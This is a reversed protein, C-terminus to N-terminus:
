KIATYSDTLAGRSDFRVILLYQWDSGSDMEGTQYWYVNDSQLLPHAPSGSEDPKPEYRKSFPQYRVLPEGLLTIVESQSMGPRLKGLAAKRM